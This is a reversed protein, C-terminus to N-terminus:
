RAKEDTIFTLLSPAKTPYADTGIAGGARAVKRQAATPTAAHRYKHFREIAVADGAIRAIVDEIKEEPRHELLIGARIMRILVRTLEEGIQRRVASDIFFGIRWLSTFRELQAGLHGASLKGRRSAEYDNFKHVEGDVFIAVEAVKKNMRSEPCYMTISGPPLDFDLELRRLANERNAWAEEGDAYLYQIRPADSGAFEEYAVMVLLDHLHRRLLQSALRRVAKSHSDSEGRQSEQKRFPGRGELLAPLLSEEPNSLLWGELSLKVDDSAGSTSAGQKSRSPIALTLARELMATATMKTRHFLVAEGLQYRNELLDLIASIGDTRLKPWHGVAVVFVDSASPRPKEQTSISQNTRPTRIEMYHLIREDFFRYKGIHFWDRYLYDLLDACITNGVIDRCIVTRLETSAFVQDPADTWESMKEQPKSPKLIILKLLKSAPFDKRLKEPIYKAYERDIVDGLSEVKEGFWETESLIRDVRGAEDHKDLLHLEDEFTHGFPVHGIDHLLAGLRIFRKEIETPAAGILWQDKIEVEPRKRSNHTVAEIMRQAVWVTGLAHEFRRHTAGRFVLYAFGLQNIGGLRQFAPHDIITVEEPYFWVFGHIPVFFEQRDEPQSPAANESIDRHSIKEERMTKKDPSVVAAPEDRGGVVHKHTPGNDTSPEQNMAHPANENEGADFLLPAADAPEAVEGIVQTLAKLKKTPPLNLGRAYKQLSDYSLGTKAALARLGEIEPHDKLYQRISKALNKRGENPESM